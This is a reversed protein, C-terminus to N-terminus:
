WVRIGRRGQRALLHAGLNVWSPCADLIVADSTIVREKTHLTRDVEDLELQGGMEARIWIDIPVIDIKKYEPNFVKMPTNIYLVPKLTSFAVEMSINSWDTILLDASYM